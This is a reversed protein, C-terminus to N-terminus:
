CYITMMIYRIIWKILVIYYVIMLLSNKITEHVESKHDELELISSWGEYVNFM